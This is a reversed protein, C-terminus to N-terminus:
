FIFYCLLDAEHIELLLIMRMSRTQPFTPPGNLNEILKNYIHITSLVTVFKKLLALFHM